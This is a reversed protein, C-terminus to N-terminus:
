LKLDKKLEKPSNPKVFIKEPITRNFEISEYNIRSTQAGNTFHDVILPTKVGQFDVFQAYRDEEKLEEKDANLRKYLAKIPLNEDSFEFEVAFEDDFTLKVVDSRKGLTAPRKGVYSLAAKGRWYGRLLHDLSVRLSRKFGEIQDKNQVNITEGGGDFIWGTDGTNTQVTKVGGDKFETREKDPHVLVDAFSQFSVVAGDRIVSFRGRGVTSKVQLYKEGGLKEVAKKIIAEAKEDTKNAQAFTFAASILVLFILLSLNKM